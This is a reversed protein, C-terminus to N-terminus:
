VCTIFISDQSWISLCVSPRLSLCVSPRVSLCISLRVSPSVSLRVPPGVARCVSPGVSLCVSVYISLYISLRVSLCVSLCISLYIPLYISLYIFMFVCMCLVSMYNQRNHPHSVYRRVNGYSYLDLTKLFPLYRFYKPKLSSNLLSLTLSCLSSSWSKYEEGGVILTILYLPVLHALCTACMTISLSMSTKPPFVHLFSVVQLLQAYIYSYCVFLVELHLLVEVSSVRSRPSSSQLFYHVNSDWLIRPVTQRVFSM